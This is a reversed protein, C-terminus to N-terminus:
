DDIGISGWESDIEAQNISESESELQAVVPAPANLM